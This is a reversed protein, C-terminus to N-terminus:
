NRRRSQVFRFPSHLKAKSSGSVPSASPQCLTVGLVQLGSGRREVAPDGDGVAELRLEGANALCGEVVDDPVGAGELIRIQAVLTEQEVEASHIVARRDPHVARLYGVMLSSVRGERGVHSMGERAFRPVVDDYYPDFVGTSVHGDWPPLLVPFLLGLTDEVGTRGTDPLGDPEFGYVGALYRDGRVRPLRSAAFVRPYMGLARARPGISPDSVGEAAPGDPACALTVLL